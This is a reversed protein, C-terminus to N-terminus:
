TDLVEAGESPEAVFLHDSLAEDLGRHRYYDHHLADLLREARSEHCLAVVCGGFGAGTLRAGAAGADLAIDVLEDLERCSVEYDDRLSAHSANMLSGFAAMDGQRMAHEAREVREGETVTHRFRALLPPPVTAAAIELLEAVSAVRCLEAYDRIPEAIGLAEVMLLRADICERVRTNYTEQQPGSKEASVLSHAVVFRWAPPVPVPRLRVPHFDIRIAHGARGGLSIAQDMGGGETGVYREARALLEMLTDPELSVENASAFALATAVVLSSSSSLGAAVPIDGSVALDIGVAVSRGHMMAQGAAKVYNIWDGTPHPDITSGTLRFSRSPFRLDANAVRVMADDRRRFLAITNRQIAMPLVPLGNYDTHDGILNVRGPARSIRTSGGAGFEDDFLRHLDGVRRPDM